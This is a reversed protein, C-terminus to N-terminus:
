FPNDDFEEDRAVSPTGTTTKAAAPAATTTSTATSSPAGTIQYKREGARTSLETVRGQRQLATLYEDTVRVPDTSRFKYVKAADVIQKDHGAIYQEIEDCARSFASTSIRGAVTELAYVWEETHLLMQTVHATTIWRSGGALALLAAAKWMIDALRRVSTTFIDQEERGLFHLHIAWKAEDFRQLAEDTFLMPILKQGAPLNGRLMTITRTFRGAWLKPRPDEEHIEEMSQQVTRMSDRTVPQDEGITWFQRALFGTRFMGRDLVRFMGEPTGIMLSSVYARANSKQLEQKGVRSLQPVFGDYVKTITAQVGASWDAKKWTALMGDAEDTWTLSAKGERALLREILANESHNGGIDPSDSPYYANLVDWMCRLADTKGTSSAGIGSGFLNLHMRGSPKPAYATPSFITALAIWGMMKHYPRNSITFRSECWAVYEDLWSIATTASLREDATVLVIPKVHAKVARLEDAAEAAAGQGREYTVQALAKRAEWWLGDVGRQDTRWKSAAPSHWAISVVEDIVFGFRFLDLLLGFRQESRWGKDGVMPKKFILDNLRRESQPIQQLLEEHDPLDALAPVEEDDVYGGYAMVEAKNKAEEEMTPYALEFDEISYVAGTESWTIEYPEEVSDKTNVTPMRLYKNAAWGSPDCGDDKHATTIRHAIEAARHAAVPEDLMWYDHGHGPSTDVHRSPPLRFAEPPCLDSDMYIVSAIIANDTSRSFQPKGKADTPKPQGKKDKPVEDGYLLPSLYVNRNHGHRRREAYAVMDDLQDPYAFWEQRDVVLKGAENKTSATAMVANGSTDGLIGTIFERMM